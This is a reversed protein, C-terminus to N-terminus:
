LNEQFHKGTVITCSRIEALQDVSAGTEEAFELVEDESSFALREVLPTSLDSMNRDTVASRKM